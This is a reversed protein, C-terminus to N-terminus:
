VSVSTSSPATWFVTSVPVAHLSSSPAIMIASALSPAESVSVSAPLL